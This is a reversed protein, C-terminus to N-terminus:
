RIMKHDDEHHAVHGTYPKGHIIVNLRGAINCESRLLESSGRFCSRTHNFEDPETAHLRIQHPVGECRFNLTIEGQDVYVPKRGTRDFVCVTAEAREHDIILEAHYDEDGLVILRGGNPGVDSHGEDNSHEDSTVSPGDHNHGHAHTCESGCPASVVSEFYECGCWAIMGLLTLSPASLRSFHRRM